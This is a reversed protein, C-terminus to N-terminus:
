RKGGGVVFLAEHFSSSLKSWISVIEIYVTSASPSTSSLSSMTSPMRTLSLQVINMRRKSPCWKPGMSARLVGTMMSIVLGMRYPVNGRKEKGPHKMFGDIEVRANSDSNGGVRQKRNAM